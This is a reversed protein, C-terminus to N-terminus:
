IFQRQRDPRMNRFDRCVWIRAHRKGWTIEIRAGAGVDESGDDRVPTGHMTEFYWDRLGMEDAVDRVYKGLATFEKNTMGPHKSAMPARRSKRAPRPASRM